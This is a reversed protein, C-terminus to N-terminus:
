FCYSDTIDVVALYGYSTDFVWQDDSEYRGYVSNGVYHTINGNDYLLATKASSLRGLSLSKESNEELSSYEDYQASMFERASHGLAYLDEQFSVMLDQVATDRTGANLAEDIDHNQPDEKKKLYGEIIFTSAPLSYIDGVEYGREELVHAFLGDLHLAACQGYVETFSDTDRSEVFKGWLYTVSEPQEVNEAAFLDQSVFIGLSFCVYITLIKRINM